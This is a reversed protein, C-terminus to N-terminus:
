STTWPKCGTSTMLDGARLTVVIPGLATGRALIAGGPRTRSWVCGAGAVAPGPTRYRGAAVDFGVKFTGDAFETAPASPAPTSSSTPTVTVPPPTITQTIVQTITSTVPPPAAPANRDDVLKAAFAIGGTIVVAAVVLALWPVIRGARGAM